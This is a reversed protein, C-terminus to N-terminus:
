LMGRRRYYIITSHHIGLVAAVRAMPWGKSLAASAAALRIPRGEPGHQWWVGRPEGRRDCEAAAAKEILAALRLDEALKPRERAALGAIVDAAQRLLRVLPLSHGDANDHAATTPNDTDM